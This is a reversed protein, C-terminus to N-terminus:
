FQRLQYQLTRSRDRKVEGLLLVCWSPLTIPLLFATTMREAPELMLEWRRGLLIVSRKKRLGTGLLTHALNKSLHLIQCWPLLRFTTPRQTGTISWMVQVALDKQLPWLSKWLEEWHSCVRELLPLFLGVGTQLCRFGKASVTKAFAATAPMMSLCVRITHWYCFIGTTDGKATVTM